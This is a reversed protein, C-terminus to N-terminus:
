FNSASTRRNSTCHFMAVNTNLHLEYCRSILIDHDSEPMFKRWIRWGSGSMRQFMRRPTGSTRSLGNVDVIEEGAVALGPRRGPGEAFLVRLVVVVIGLFVALLLM